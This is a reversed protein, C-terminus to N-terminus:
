PEMFKNFEDRTKAIQAPDMNHSEFSFATGDPRKINVILSSDRSYYSKLVEFLAVAAGSTFFTLLLLGLTVPEGKVWQDAPQEPIQAEIDTERSLTRSLDRTLGQVQNDTLNESGIYLEVEM